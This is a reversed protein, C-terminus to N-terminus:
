EGLHDIHSWDSWPLQELCRAHARRDCFKIVDEELGDLFSEIEDLCIEVLLDAKFILAGFLDLGPFFFFM